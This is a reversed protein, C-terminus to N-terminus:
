RWLPAPHVAVPNNPAFQGHPQPVEYTATLPRTTGCWCCVQGSANYQGAQHTSPTWVAHWCHSREDQCKTNSM